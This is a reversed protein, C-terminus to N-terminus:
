VIFRDIVTQKDVSMILLLFQKENVTVLRLEFYLHDKLECNHKQTFISIKQSDLVEDFLSSKTM